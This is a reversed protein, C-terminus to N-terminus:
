DSDRSMDLMHTIRRLRSVLSRCAAVHESKLTCVLVESYLLKDSSLEIAEAWQLRQGPQHDTELQLEAVRGLWSGTRSDQAGRSRECRGRECRGRECRGRECRGRECRGHGCSGGDSAEIEAASEVLLIGARYEEATEYVALLMNGVEPVEPEVELRRHPSPKHKQGTGSGNSGQALPPSKFFAPESRSGTSADSGHERSQGYM